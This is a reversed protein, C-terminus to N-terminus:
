TPRCTLPQSARVVGSAPLTAPFACPAQGPPTLTFTYTGAPPGSLYLEGRDGVVFTDDNLTVLTGLPVAQGDPTLVTVVLGTEVHTEFRLEVAGRYPASFKLVSSNLEAELPLDNLRVRVTNTRYPQLPGLVAWGSADTTAAPTLNGNLMLAVNPYGVYVRAFSGLTSRGFRVGQADLTVGGKLAVQGRTQTPSASANVNMDFYRGRNALAFSQAVDDHGYAVATTGTAARTLTRPGRGDTSTSVKSNGGFLYESTLALKVRNTLLGTASLNLTFDNTPQYTYQVGLSGTGEGSTALTYAYSVGVNHGRAVTMSSALSFGLEPALGLTSLRARDDDVRTFGPTRVHVEGLALWDKGSVQASLQGYAGWGLWSRSGAGVLTVYAPGVAVRNVVGFLAADRTAEAQAGVTWQPTVGYAVDGQALWRDIKPTYGASASYTWGGARLMDPQAYYAQTFNTKTHLVDEVDVHLTGFAGHPQLGDIEYPGAPLRKTYLWGDADYVDVLSPRTLTGRVTQDKRTSGSVDDLSQVRVGYLPVAGGWLRASTEVTGARVRLAQEPLDYAGEATFGSLTVNPYAQVNLAAQASFRGAAGGVLVNGSLALGTQAGLVVAYDMFGSPVSFTPAVAGAADRLTIRTLQFREPSANLHLRLNEEDVRVADVLDNLLVYPEDNVCQADRQHLRLTGAAQANVYARQGDTLVLVPPHQPVDNVVVDM